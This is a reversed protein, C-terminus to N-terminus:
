HSWLKSCVPIYYMLSKSFINSSEFIGSFHEKGCESTEIVEEEHMAAM